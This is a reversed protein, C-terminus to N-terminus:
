TQFELFVNLKTEDDYTRYPLDKPSLSALDDMTRHILHWEVVHEMIWRTPNDPHVNTALVKGNPLTWESFLNLLRACIRDSLYDFLGACYVFNYQAKQMQSGSAQKLLGHVSEHVYNVNFKHGSESAAQQLKTRAHSLTEENFDILTFECRDINKCNRVLRQLEIAPGCGVNLIKVTDGSSAARNACDTLEKEIIKLRNRHAKVLGIELYFQNVIQAFTTPGAREGFVMTNVMEYDGAYGLPKTYSRYFFPARMMLPLLDNQAQSRHAELEDKHIQKAIEEFSQQLESVKPLLPQTLQLFVDEPLSPKTEEYDIDVQEVWTNLHSLFSRIEGVAVQYEPRIRKSSSWDDVFGIAEHELNNHKSYSLALDAWHDVLTASVILMLGTNVLSSVVARGNYIQDTGRRITLDSLVESLQVISYPNYVEFAISTRSIRLLTGRAPQRQSNNFTIIKEITSGLRSM